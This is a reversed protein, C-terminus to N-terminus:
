PKDAAAFRSARALVDSRTAIQRNWFAPDDARRARVLCWALSLSRAVAIWKSLLGSDDDMGGADLLIRCEGPSLAAEAAFYAIDWLPHCLASYEWDLLIARDDFDVINEPVPDVHSAVLTKRELRCADRLGNVAAWLPGFAESSDPATCEAEDLYADIKVWPDMLGEFGRATRLRALVRGLRTLVGPEYPRELTDLGRGKVFRTLVVGAAPDVAVVEPGIGLAAAKLMHDYERTRDVLGVTEKGAIRLVLDDGSLLLRMTRNGSGQLSQTVHADKMDYGLRELADRIEDDMMTVCRTLFTRPHCSQREHSSFEVSKQPLNTGAADTGAAQWQPRPGDHPGLRARPQQDNSLCGPATHVCAAYGPVICTAVTESGPRVKIAGCEVVRPTDGDHRHAKTVGPPIGVASVPRRTGLASRLPVFPNESFERRDFEGQKDPAVGLHAIEWLCASDGHRFGHRCPAIMERCEHRQRVRRPAVRCPEPAIGPELPLNNGLKAPANGIQDVSLSTM